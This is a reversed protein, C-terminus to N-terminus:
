VITAKVYLTTYMLLIGNAHTPECMDLDMQQWRQPHENRMQNTAILTRTIQRLLGVLKASIVCECRSALEHPRTRTLQKQLFANDTKNPKKILM